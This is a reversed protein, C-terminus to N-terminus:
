VHPEDRVRLDCAQGPDGPEREGVPLRLADSSWTVTDCAPKIQLLLLPLVLSYVGRDYCFFNAVLTGVCCLCSCTPSTLGAGRRSRHPSAQSQGGGGM